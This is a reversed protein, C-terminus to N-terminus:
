YLPAVSGAPRDAEVSQAAGRTRRALLSWAPLLLLGAGLLTILIKILM